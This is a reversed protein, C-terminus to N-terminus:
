CYPVIIAINSNIDLAVFLQDESEWAGACENKWGQKLIKIWLIMGM